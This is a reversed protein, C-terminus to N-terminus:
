QQASEDRSPRIGENTTSSQALMEESKVVQLYPLMRELRERSIGYCRRLETAQDIDPHKELYSVISKAEKFSIYPHRALRTTTALNLDIRQHPRVLDLHPRIAQFVSDPLGFTESVQDIDVYGGLAHRYKMIRKSYAPGIGRLKRWALSDTTNVDLTYHAYEEDSIKKDVTTKKYTSYSAYNKKNKKSKKGKKRSATSYIINGENRTIVEPNIGYIKQLDAASAIVGGAAQFKRMRAYIWPKMGARIFSISDPQNLDLVTESTVIQGPQVNSKHTRSQSTNKSQEVATAQSKNERNRNEVSESNAAINSSKHISIPASSESRRSSKPLTPNEDLHESSEM